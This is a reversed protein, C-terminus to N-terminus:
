AQQLLERLRRDVLLSSFLGSSILEGLSEMDGVVGLRERLDSAAFDIAKLREDDDIMDHKLDSAMVFYSRHDNFRSSQASAPVADGMFEYESTMHCQNERPYETPDLARALCGLRLAWSSGAFIREPEVVWILDGCALYHAAGHRVFGVDALSRRIAKGFDKSTMTM